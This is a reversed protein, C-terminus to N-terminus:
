WRRSRAFYDEAQKGFTDRLAAEEGQIFRRSIILPFAIAPLFSSLTGLCIAAGFIVMAMGSYIPNRNIRFPGDDILVKPIRRPLMPTQKVKFWHRTWLMLAFGALILAVGPWRPLDLHALPVMWSLIAAVLIAGLGWIPPFDLKGM